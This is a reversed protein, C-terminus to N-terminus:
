GSDPLRIEVRTGTGPASTVAMSGGAAEVRVRQTALGIHGEALRAPLEELPFGRGDDAVVLELTGNEAALHLQLTNADAHRVVNALLERAASFVLQERPHRRGYRLDLDLTLRGQAAAQGAATRLAAELGAEELVYPHLDVVAERLQDVTEVLAEDARVLAPHPDTEGAEQLEHRASLINQLAHDHLAEALAQRERQEATLADNLLRARADALRAVLETRRALLVSLLVCAVGVWAIFGAQTAIFRTAGPQSAGRQASAEAVYAGTAVVVAAGTVAPRFRFAATIPIVFYALRVHSFAGGSFAALLSIAVVDVVTASLAFSEGVPRLYVWALVGASWVAFLVLAVVFAAHEADPNESGQGLAVLAIAPLRLWAVMRESESIAERSVGALVPRAL